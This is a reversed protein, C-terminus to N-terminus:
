RFYKEIDDNQIVKVIEQYLDDMRAILHDEVKWYDTMFEFDCLQLMDREDQIDQIAKAMGVIIDAKSAKM